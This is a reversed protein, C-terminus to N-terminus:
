SLRIKIYKFTGYLFGAAAGAAGGLIIGGITTAAYALHQCANWSQSESLLDGCFQRQTLPTILPSVVGGGALIGAIMGTKSTVDVIAKYSQDNVKRHIGNVDPMRVPDSSRFPQHDDIKNIQRRTGITSSHM